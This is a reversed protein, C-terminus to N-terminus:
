RNFAFLQTLTTKIEANTRCLEFTGDNYHIEVAGCYNEWNKIKKNGVAQNLAKELTKKIKM